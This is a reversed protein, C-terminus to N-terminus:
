VHARGIEGRGAGRGAPRSGLYRTEVPFARGASTVIPADGMLRALAAGDLTASMAVLRLDDRLADQAELALALGLDVELSREHIEDFLVACVGPLSPYDQIM